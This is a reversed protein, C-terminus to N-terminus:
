SDLKGERIQLELQAAREEDGSERIKKVEAMLFEEMWAIFEQLAQVAAADDKKSMDVGLPKKDRALFECESM